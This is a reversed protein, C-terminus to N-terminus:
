RPKATVGEHERREVHTTAPDCLTHIPVELIRAVEREDPHFDPRRPTWAVVPHLVFGSVPIHLLTLEGLVEVAGPDIAVEEQAERLAAATRDEGEERAGGPLSVQGAHQALDSRRVTLVLHPQNHESPYLLILGAGVRADDPAREPIWGPRPRPSMRM